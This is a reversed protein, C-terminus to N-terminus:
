TVKLQGRQLFTPSLLQVFLCTAISLTSVLERKSNFRRTNCPHSEQPQNLRQSNSTQRNAKQEMMDVWLWGFLFCRLCCWYLWSVKAERRLWLDVAVKTDSGAGSSKKEYGRVVSHWRLSLTRQCCLLWGHRNAYNFVSRSYNVQNSRRQQRFTSNSIQSNQWLFPLLM